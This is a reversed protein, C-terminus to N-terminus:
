GSAHRCGGQNDGMNDGPLALRSPDGRIAYSHAADWKTAVHAEEIAIPYPAEPSRTYDVFILAAHTGNTIQRILRDHTDKDGLVWSGGHFYIV